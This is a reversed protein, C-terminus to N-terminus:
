PVTRATVLDGILVVGVVRGDLRVFRVGGGRLAAVAQMRSQASVVTADEELRRLTSLSLRSRESLTHLPWGLMARAARLHQRQVTDDDQVDDSTQMPCAFRHKTWAAPMSRDVARPSSSQAPHATEAGRAICAPFCETRLAAM